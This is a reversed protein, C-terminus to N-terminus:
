AQLWFEKQHSLMNLARQWCTACATDHKAKLAPNQKAEANCKKDSVLRNEVWCFLRGASYQTISYRAEGDRVLTNSHRMLASQILITTSPPFQIILWLDWFVLHGSFNPNFEGFTTVSCWRWPLNRSNLHPFCVAQPGVNLTMVVWPSNKFNRCLDSHSALLAEMTQNYCNYMQPSYMAFGGSQYPYSTINLPMDCPRRVHRLHSVKQGGGYSIGIAAAPFPCHRHKGALQSVCPQAAANKITATADEVAEGCQLGRPQGLLIAVVAGVSDTIP